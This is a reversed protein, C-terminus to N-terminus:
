ITAGPATPDGIPLAGPEADPDHWYEVGGGSGSAPAAFYPENPDAVLVKREARIEASRGSTLDEVQKGTLRKEPSSHKVLTAAVRRRLAASKREGAPADGDVEVRRLPLSGAGDGVRFALCAPLTGSRDKGGPPRIVEIRGVQDRKFPETAKVFWAADAQFLKSGAGAPYPNAETGGKTPADVVVCTAGAAKAPHTLYKAWKSNEGRDNPDFGATTLAMDMSDLVCLVGPYDEDGDHAAALRRITAVLDATGKENALLEPRWVYAIQDDLQEPTIGVAVAKDTFDDPTEEFDIWLLDGGAEIHERGAWLALTTKGAAPHGILLHIRQAVLLDPVLAPPAERSEPDRAREGLGTEIKLGPPEPAERETPPEVTAAYEDASMSELEDAIGRAQQVKFRREKERDLTATTSSGGGGDSTPAAYLKAMATDRDTATTV